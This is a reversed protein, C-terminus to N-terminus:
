KKPKKSKKLWTPNSVKAKGKVIKLHKAVAPIDWYELAFCGDYDGVALAECELSALKKCLFTFQNKTEREVYLGVKGDEFRCYLHDASWKGIARAIPLGDTNERLRLRNNRCFRKFTILHKEETATNMLSEKTERRIM